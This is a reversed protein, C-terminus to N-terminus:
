KHYRSGTHSMFARYVQECLMLRALQHPFTMASFSLRISAANKVVDDLGHSSGIVFVVSKEGQTAATQLLEALQESTKQGGEVCLAVLLAGKPVADLIREGEKKLAARISAPSATKDQIATEPLECVELRCLPRLRKQYEAIGDAYFGAARGVVIIKIHQM